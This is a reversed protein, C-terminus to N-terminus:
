DQLQPNEKMAQHDEGKVEKTTKKIKRKKVGKKTKIKKHNM